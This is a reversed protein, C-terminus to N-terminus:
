ELDKSLRIEVNARETEITGTQMEELDLNKIKLKDIWKGKNISSYKL